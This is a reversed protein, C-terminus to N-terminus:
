HSLKLSLIIIYIEKRHFSTTRFVASVSVYYVNYEILDYNLQSPTGVVKLQLYANECFLCPYAGLTHLLNTEGNLHASTAVADLPTLLTVPEFHPPPHPNREHRMELHRLV